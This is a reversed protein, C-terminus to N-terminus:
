KIKKCMIYTTHFMYLMVILLSSYNTGSDMDWTRCCESPIGGADNRIWSAPNEGSASQLASNYFSKAWHTVHRLAWQVKHRVTPQGELPALHHKVPLTNQLRLYQTLLTISPVTMSWSSWPVNIVQKIQQIQVSKSETSSSNVHKRKLGIQHADQCLIWGHVWSLNNLLQCTWVNWVTDTSHLTSCLQAPIQNDLCECTVNVVNRGKNAPNVDLFVWTLQTCM